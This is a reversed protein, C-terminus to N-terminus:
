KRRGRLAESVRATNVGHREALKQHTLKPHQAKDVRIAEAIEPTFPRSTKPAHPLSKERYLSDALHHLHIGIDKLDLRSLPEGNLPLEDQYVLRDAIKHMAEQVDPIKM